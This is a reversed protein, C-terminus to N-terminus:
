NCHGMFLCYVNPFISDVLWGLFALDLFDWLVYYCHSFFFECEGCIHVHCAVLVYVYTGDLSRCM